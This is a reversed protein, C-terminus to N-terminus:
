SIEINGISPPSLNPSPSVPTEPKEIGGIKLVKYLSQLFGM